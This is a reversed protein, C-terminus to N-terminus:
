PFHGDGPRGEHLMGYPAFGVLQGSFECGLKEDDYKPSIDGEEKLLSLIREPYVRSLPPPLGSLRFM